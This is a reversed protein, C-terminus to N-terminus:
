TRQKVGQTDRKGIRLRNLVVEKEKYVARIDEGESFVFAAEVEDKKQLRIGRVGIAGKKKESVEGAPFRLFYGNVTQLVVYDAGQVPCVTRLEDEDQLKTAATTRKSVIFEKGDVLKIMGDKTVFLLKEEGLLDEQVLFVIDEKTSDFNSVNDVPQGKDRFRGHPLDMVKIQHMRGQGTFLCIKGTNMCRIVYRNEADAAEKNREYVSADVTKAYGFRDMLFVVEQEEIKKEKLVIEEANELSTKRKVAYEKKLRNLDEIIVSSMEDYDNLIKEYRAIKEM